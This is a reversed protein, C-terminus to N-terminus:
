YYIILRTALGRTSETTKVKDENAGSLRAQLYLLAGQVNITNDVIVPHSCVVCPSYRAFVRTLPARGRPVSM